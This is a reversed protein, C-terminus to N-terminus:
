MREPASVGLLRLGNALVIKVAQILQLRSNCLQDDDVLFPHANYYSHLATALERLYYTIAHPEHKLAAAEITESFRNLVAIVAQEQSESLLSFDATEDGLQRGSEQLQRFVSCIRAHAYQVYYVPNENSSSKALELDFDM